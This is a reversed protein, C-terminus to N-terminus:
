PTPSLTGLLGVIAVIALATATELALSHRLPRMGAAPDRQLRPTLRWRNAAALALMLAFLALKIGLALSWGSALEPPWGAVILTNAIGTLLLLGVIVSGTAAFASLDRVLKRRDSGGIAAGLFLVLAGLWAAAALLHIVDAARHLTGLGAESAGAHGTWATTGLAVSAALAAPAIRRRFAALAALPLALARVALVTGLPTAQLVALVMDRDLEAVPTAAMAAISAIAWWASAALGALAASGAVRCALGEQAAQRRAVALYLPIGAALMTAAYVAVRAAILGADEM